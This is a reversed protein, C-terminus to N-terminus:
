PTVMEQSIAVVRGDRFVIQFRPYRGGTRILMTVPGLGLGRWRRRCAHGIPRRLYAGDYYGYSYFSDPIAGAHDSQSADPHGLALKVAGGTM